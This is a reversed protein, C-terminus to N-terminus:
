GYKMWYHLLVSVTLKYWNSLGFETEDVQRKQTNLIKMSNIGENQLSYKNTVIYEVIYKELEVLKPPEIRLGVATSDRVYVEIDAPVQFDVTNGVADINNDINTERYIVRLTINKNTRDPFGGYDIDEGPITINFPM